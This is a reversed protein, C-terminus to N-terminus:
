PMLDPEHVSNGDVFEAMRIIEHTLRPYHDKKAVADLEPARVRRHDPM